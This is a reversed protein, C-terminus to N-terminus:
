WVPFQGGKEPAHIAPIFDPAELNAALRLIEEADRPEALLVAANLKELDTKEMSEVAKCLRNLAPLDSGKLHDLDLIASIKEPLEDTVVRIRIGESDIDTRKRQRFLQQESAPLCITGNPEGGRSFVEIAAVPSGYLFSPFYWGDYLEELKVGGNLSAQSDRQCCFALNIFDRINRLDLKYAMRQFQACEDEHFGELRKALCDLEDVNADTGILGKLAAYPSDLANVLCDQYDISGFGLGSLLEMTHDYEERPIPFSVTAKGDKPHRASCLVAQFVNSM